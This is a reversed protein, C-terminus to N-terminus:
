WHGLLYVQHPVFIAKRLLSNKETTRAERLYLTQPKINEMNASDSFGPIGYPRLKLDQNGEHKGLCPIQGTFGM